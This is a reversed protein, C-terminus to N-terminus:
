KDNLMSNRKRNTTLNKTLRPGATSNETVYSVTVRSSVKRRIEDALVSLDKEVKRMLIDDKTKTKVTITTSSPNNHNEREDLTLRVKHKQGLRKM